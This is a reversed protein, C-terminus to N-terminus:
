EGSYTGVILEARGASVADPKIMAFTQEVELRLLDHHQLKVLSKESPPRDDDPALQNAPITAMNICAALNFFSAVLFTGGPGGIQLMSRIIQPQAASPGTQFFQYVKAWFMPWIFGSITQLSDFAAVQAWSCIDIYIAVYIGYIFRCVVCLNLPRTCQLTAPM